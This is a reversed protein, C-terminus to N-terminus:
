DASDAYDATLDEDVLRRRSSCRCIQRFSDADDADDATLEEDVERRRENVEGGGCEWLRECSSRAYAEM